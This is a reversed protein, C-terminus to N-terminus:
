GTLAYFVEELVAEDTIPLVEKHAKCLTSQLATCHFPWLMGPHREEWCVACIISGDDVELPAEKMSALTVRKPLAQSQRKIIWPLYFCWGMLLIGWLVGLLFMAMLMLGPYCGSLM